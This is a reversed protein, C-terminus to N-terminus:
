LVHARNTDIYFRVGDQLNEGKLNLEVTLRIERIRV